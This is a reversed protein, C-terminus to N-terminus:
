HARTTPRLEVERLERMVDMRRHVVRIQAFVMEVANHVMSRSLEPNDKLVERVIESATRTYDPDSGVIKNNVKRMLKNFAKKAEEHTM